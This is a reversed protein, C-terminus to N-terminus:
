DSEKDVSMKQANNFEDTNSVLKDMQAGCDQEGEYNSCWICYDKHSKQMEECEPCKETEVMTNM